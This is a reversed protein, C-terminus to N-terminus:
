CRGRSAPSTSSRAPSWDSPSPRAPSASGSCCRACGADPDDLVDGPGRPVRLGAGVLLVTALAGLTVRGGESLDNWFRATVLGAAVLIVVGGLYGLAEVLLSRGPAPPGALEPQAVVPVDREAARIADAQEASVLGDAVWRTLLADLHVPGNTM